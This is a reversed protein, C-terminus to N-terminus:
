RRHAPRRRRHLPVTVGPAPVGKPPRGSSKARPKGSAAMTDLRLRRGPMASEGVAPLQSDELFSRICPDKFQYAIPHLQLNSIAIGSHTLWQVTTHLM